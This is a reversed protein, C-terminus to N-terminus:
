IKKIFVQIKYKHLSLVKTYVVPTIVKSKKSYLLLLHKTLLIYIQKFPVLLAKIQQLYHFTISSISIHHYLISYLYHM